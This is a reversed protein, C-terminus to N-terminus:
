EKSYAVSWNVKFNQYDHAIKEKKKKKYCMNYNFNWCVTPVSSNSVEYHNAICKQYKWEKRKAMFEEFTAWILQLTQCMMSISSIWVDYWNLRNWNYKLQTFFKSIKMEYYLVLYVREFDNLITIKM